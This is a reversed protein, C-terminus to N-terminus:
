RRAKRKLPKTTKRAQRAEWRRVAEERVDDVDSVLPSGILVLCDAIGRARAAHEGVAQPDKHSMMIDMSRDLVRWMSEHLSPGGTEAQVRAEAMANARLLIDREEEERRKGM